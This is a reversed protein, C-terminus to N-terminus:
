SDDGQRTTLDIVEADAQDAQEPPTLVEALENPDLSNLWEEVQAASDALRIAERQEFLVAHILADAESHTLPIGFRRALDVMRDSAYNLKGEGTMDHVRGVEEAASVVARALNGLAALRNPTLYTRLWARVFASIVGVVGVVLTFVYNQQM